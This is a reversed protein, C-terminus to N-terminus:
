IFYKVPNTNVTTKRIAFTPFKELLLEHLLDTTFQESEFHGIDAIVMKGDADFFEHYKVDATVLIDAKQELANPILFSGAGGCVAIRRIMKGTLATHRITRPGFIKRLRLLFDVEDAPTPLTGILGSGVAPDDNLLNVLDHAIEEYPHSVRLANIIDARLHHPFIFELKIEPEYNREGKSGSFPIAGPGPKFTGSGESAFSAESYKGINGAGAAFIADRVKDAHDAPVFTFLKTLGSDRKKLVRTDILGLMRAIRGNVGHVVNDLNTHIAFIAINHRIATIVAREVYNKGNIKKLGTFIIPHHAIVINCNSAAAELIVEETSDLAIMIGSCEAAVDGVLLGANDYPEQLSPPAISNLFVILESIKM